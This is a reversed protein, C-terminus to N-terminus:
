FKLIIFDRSSQSLVQCITYTESFRNATNAIKRYLYESVRLGISLDLHGIVQIVDVENDLPLDVLIEFSICHNDKCLRDVRTQFNEYPGELEPRDRYLSHNLSNLFNLKLSASLKISIVCL